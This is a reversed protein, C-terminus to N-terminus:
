VTVDVRTYLLDDGFWKLGTGKLSNQYRLLYFTM